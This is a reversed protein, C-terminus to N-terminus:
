SCTTEVSFMCCCAITEAEYVHPNSFRTVLGVSRVVLFLSFITFKHMMEVMGCDRDHVCARVGTSDGVALGRDRVCACVGSGDDEAMGFELPALEELALGRFGTDHAGNLDGPGGETAAGPDLGQDPGQDPGADELDCAGDGADQWAEEMGVDGDNDGTVVLCNVISFLRPTFHERMSM